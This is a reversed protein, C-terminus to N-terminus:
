VVREGNEGKPQEGNKTQSFMGMSCRIVENFVIVLNVVFNM